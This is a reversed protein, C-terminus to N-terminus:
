WISVICRYAEKYMTLKRNSLKKLLLSYRITQSSTVTQLGILLNVPYYYWYNQAM